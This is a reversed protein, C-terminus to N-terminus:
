TGEDDDERDLDRDRQALRWAQFSNPEIRRHERAQGNTKFKERSAAISVRANAQKLDLHPMDKLL